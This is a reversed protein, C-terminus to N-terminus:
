SLVSYGQLLDDTSPLGVPRLSLSVTMSRRMSVSASIMHLGDHIFIQERLGNLALLPVEM